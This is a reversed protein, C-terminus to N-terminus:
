TGYRDGAKAIRGTLWWFLPTTLLSFGIQLGLLELANGPLPSGLFLRQVYVGGECLVLTLATGCLAPLLAQAVYASTIYGAIISGLPLCFLFVAGGAAGSLAWFLATLLAFLGGREHGERCATCAVYVPVLSLKTGLFTRDGLVTTSLLLVLLFGASYLCWRLIKRKRQNM